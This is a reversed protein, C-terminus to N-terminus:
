LDTQLEEVAIMGVGSARSVARKYARTDSYRIIEGHPVDDAHAEGYATYIHGADDTATAKHAVLEGGSDLPSVVMETQCEIDYHHAIVEFGKRNIAVTGDISDTFEDPMWVLPDENVSPGDDPLEESYEEAAPEPADVVEPGGDTHTEKIELNDPSMGLEILKQKQEKAEAVTNFERENGKRENLLKVTM